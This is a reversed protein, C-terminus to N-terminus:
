PGPPLNGRPRGLPILDVADPDEPLLSARLVALTDALGLFGLDQWLGVLPSRVTGGIRLTRSKWRATGGDPFRVETTGTFGLHRAHPLREEFKAVREEGEAGLLVTAQGGLAGGPGVELQCAALAGAADVQFVPVVARADQWQAQIQLRGIGIVGNGASEGPRRLWSELDEMAGPGRAKFTLDRAEIAMIGARSAPRALLMIAKIEGSVNGQVPFVQGALTAPVAFWSVPANRAALQFLCPLGQAAAMQVTAVLEAGAERREALVLEPVTGRWRVPVRLSTELWEGGWGHGIRDVQVEGGSKDLRLAAGRVLAVV